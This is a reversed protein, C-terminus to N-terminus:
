KGNDEMVLHELKCKCCEPIGDSVYKAYFRWAGGQDEVCFFLGEQWDKEFFKRWLYNESLSCQRCM